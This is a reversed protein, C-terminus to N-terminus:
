SPRDERPPPPPGRPEPPNENRDGRLRVTRHLVTLWGAVLLWAGLVDTLYHVGLYVRSFGILALLAVCLLGVARRARRDRLAGSGLAILLLAGYLAASSSAHGSPWSAGSAATLHPGAPRHRGVTAKIIQVMLVTGPSALVLFLVARWRRGLLLWVLGAVFVADLWLTSGLWTMVRMVTTLAGTRPGRLADVVSPDFGPHLDTILSGAGWGALLLAGWAVVLIGLAPGTARPASDDIDSRPPTQIMRDPRQGGATGGVGLCASMM